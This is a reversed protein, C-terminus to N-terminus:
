YEQGFSSIKCIYLLRSQVCGIGDIAATESLFLRCCFLVFCGSGVFFSFWVCDESNYCCRYLVEHKLDEVTEVRLMYSESVM